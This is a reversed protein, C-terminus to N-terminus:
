LERAGTQQEEVAQMGMERGGAWSWSGIEASLTVSALLPETVEASEGM